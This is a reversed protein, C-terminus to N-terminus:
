SVKNLILSLEAKKQNGQSKAAQSDPLSEILLKIDNDICAMSEKILKENKIRQMEVKRHLGLLTKQLEDLKSSYSSDLLQTLKLLSINNQEMRLDNSIWTTVEKRNRELKKARLLAKGQKRISEELLDFHKNILCEEEQRLLKLFNELSDVEQNILEILGALQKEM